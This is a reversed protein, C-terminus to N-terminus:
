PRLPRARTELVYRKRHEDHCGKCAAKCGELDRRHAAELGEAAHREWGAYGPPAVEGIRRFVRTLSPFSGQTLAGSANGKMWAQLPCDPAGRVGCAVSEGSGVTPTAVVGSPSAEIAREAIPSSGATTRAPSSCGLALACVALPFARITM